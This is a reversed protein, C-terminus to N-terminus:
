SGVIVLIACVAIIVVAIVNEKTMVLALFERVAALNKAM